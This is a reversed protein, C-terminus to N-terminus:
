VYSIQHIGDSKDVSIDFHIEEFNFKILPVKSKRIYEVNTFINSNSRSCLFKNIRNYVETVEYEGNTLVAIDIDGDPL